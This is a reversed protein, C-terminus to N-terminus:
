RRMRVTRICESISALTPILMPTKKQYEKYESFMRPFFFKDQVTVHLVDLVVWVPIAVLLVRSRSALLLSVLALTYWIVGPHRALAYTGTTILRNGIGPRAYTQGPPIEIALSYLLLLGWIPLTAWGFLSIYGPAEFRSVGWCAAYIAYAHLDVVLFVVIPKIGRVGKIAFIDFTFAILFSAAGALVAIL